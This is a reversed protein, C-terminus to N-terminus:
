RGLHRRVDKVMPGVARVADRLQQETCRLEKCWYQVEYPQNVNIRSDDGKGTKTKDDPM